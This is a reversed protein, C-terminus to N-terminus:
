KQRSILDLYKTLTCESYEVVLALFKPKYEPTFMM